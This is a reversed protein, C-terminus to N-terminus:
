SISNHKFFDKINYRNAGQYITNGSGLKGVYAIEFDNEWPRFYVGWDAKISEANYNTLDSNMIVPEVLM